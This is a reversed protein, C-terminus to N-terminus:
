HLNLITTMENPIALLSNSSGSECSTKYGMSSRQSANIGVDKINFAANLDRDVSYGCECAFNRDSLKLEDKISGCSNCTKSSPFFRGIKVVEKGYWKSKYNLQNVFQNWAQKQIAGALKHNKMMGSVNLDEIVIQDYNNILYNSVQHQFHERKRAIKLHLKDIKNKVKKFRSSDKEKRAMHRQLHKIKRQTESFDLMKVQVGDSTTVFQKIGFDIGVSKNTKPKHDIDEEVCISVYYENINNKSVTCSLLKVDDPIVRDYKIKVKGIRELQIKNELLHFQIKALRYSLRCKKKTKFQPRGIKKKRSKNFYQKTTSLFDRQKQQLAGFSVGKLFEFSNRLEKISRHKINSNFENVFQNWVFRVCGITKGISASQTKNPYIRFKYAKHRTM